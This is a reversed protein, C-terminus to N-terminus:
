MSMGKKRSNKKKIKDSEDAPKQSISKKSDKKVEPQNEEKLEKGEKLEKVAQKPTLDLRQEQSLRQMKDNFINVTKYQPNAEIFMKKSEGNVGINVSQINGKQLSQMLSKEKEGGDM